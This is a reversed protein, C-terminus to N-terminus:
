RGREPLGPGWVVRRHVECTRPMPKVLAPSANYIKRGVRVKANTLSLALLTGARGELGVFPSLRRYQKRQEDIDGSM